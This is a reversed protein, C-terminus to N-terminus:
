VDLLVGNHKHTMSSFLFKMKLAISTYEAQFIDSFRQYHLKTKRFVSWTNM